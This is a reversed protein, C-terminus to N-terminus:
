VARPSNHRTASTITVTGILNLTYNLVVLSSIGELAVNSIDSRDKARSQGAVRPSCRTESNDGIIATRGVSRGLSAVCKSPSGEGKVDGRNLIWKKRKHLIKLPEWLTRKANRKASIVTLKIPVVPSTLPCNSPM